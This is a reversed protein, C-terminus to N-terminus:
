FNAAKDSIANRLDIVLDRRTCTVITEIRLRMARTIEDQKDAPLARILFQLDAIAGDILQRTYTQENQMTHTKNM